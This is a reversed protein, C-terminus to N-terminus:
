NEKKKHMSNVKLLTRDQQKQKMDQQLPIQTNDKYTMLRKATTTSLFYKEEVQTEMIDELSISVNGQNPYGGNLILWNVNLPIISTACFEMSQLLHETITTTLYVKLMKSYYIPYQNKIELTIKLFGKSKLFYHVEQTMLDKEKELLASLRARFDEQLYILEKDKLHNTHFMQLQDSNKQM